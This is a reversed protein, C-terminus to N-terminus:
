GANRMFGADRGRENRWMRSPKWSSFELTAGLGLVEWKVVCVSSEASTTGEGNVFTDGESQELTGDEVDRGAAPVGRGLDDAGRISSVVRRCCRKEKGMTPNCVFGTVARAFAFPSPRAFRNERTSLPPRVILSVLGVRM